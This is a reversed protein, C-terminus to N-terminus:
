VGGLAERLAPSERVAEREPVLWRLAAGLLGSVSM